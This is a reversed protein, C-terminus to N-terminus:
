VLFSISIDHGILDPVTQLFLVLCRHSRDYMHPRCQFRYQVKTVLRIPHWNHCFGSLVVVHNITYIQNVDFVFSTARVLQVLDLRYHLGFVVVIHNITYTQDISFSFSFQQSRVSQTENAIFVLYFLLTLSRIHYIKKGM